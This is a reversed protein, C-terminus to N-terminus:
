PLQELKEIPLWGRQGQPTEVGLWHPSIILVIVESLGALTNLTAASKFPAAKLEAGPAKVRRELERRLADIERELEKESTQANSLRSSEEDHQRAYSQRVVEASLQRRRAEAAEAAAEQLSDLADKVEQMESKEVTGDSAHTTKHATEVYVADIKVRTRDQGVPLIVYRVAITGIDAAEFFHRPAIAEQRIKFYVEGPGTWLEFLPTSSVDEAGNLIPEREFVRTGHIIHDKQVNLVAERVEALSGSFEQVLGPSTLPKQATAAQMVTFLCGYVALLLPKWLANGRWPPNPLETLM